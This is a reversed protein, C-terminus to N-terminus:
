NPKTARRKNQEREEITLCPSLLETTPNSAAPPLGTESDSVLKFNLEASPVNQYSLSFMHDVNTGLEDCYQYRGMVLTAVNKTPLSALDEESIEGLPAVFISDGAVVASEGQESVSGTKKDRTRFMGNKFPHNYNIGSSQNTGTLGEIFNLGPITGWALKAPLHGSNQFYLVLEANQKPNQSPIFKAVVGDKTGITVYARQSITLSQRTIDNAERMAGLQGYLYILGFLGVGAAGATIWNLCRALKIQKKKYLQESGYKQADGPAPEIRVPYVTPWKIRRNDASKGDHSADKHEEHKGHHKDSVSFGGVVAIIFLKSSFRRYITSFM